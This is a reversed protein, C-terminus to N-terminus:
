DILLSHANKAIGSSDISDLISHHPFSIKKYFVNNRYSALTIEKVNKTKCYGVKCFKCNSIIIKVQRAPLRGAYLRQETLNLFDDYFRQVYTDMNDDSLDKAYIIELTSGDKRYTQIKEEIPMGYHTIGNLSEPNPLRDYRSGDAPFAIQSLSILVLILFIKKM